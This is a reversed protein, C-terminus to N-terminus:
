PQRAVSVTASKANKRVRQPKNRPPLLDILSMPDGTLTASAEVLKAALDVSPRRRGHCIHKFYEFDTEARACVERTKPTKHKKWFEMANM